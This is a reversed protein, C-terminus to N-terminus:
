HSTVVITNTSNYGNFRNYVADLDKRIKLSVHEPHDGYLGRNTAMIFLLDRYYRTFYKHCLDNTYENNLNSWVAVDVDAKM